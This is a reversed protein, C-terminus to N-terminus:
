SLFVGSASVATIPAFALFHFCAPTFDGVQAYSLFSCCGHLLLFPANVIEGQFLDSKEPTVKISSAERHLVCQKVIALRL